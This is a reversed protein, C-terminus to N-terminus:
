VAEIKKFRNKPATCVPCNDPPEDTAVYGCFDCVYYETDRSQKDLQSHLDLNRQQVATSHRFGTELAKAEDKEAETLMANYERIFAPIEEEFATKENEPTTGVGGRIQVLFRQAQMAQSASLARFLLSLQPQGDKKARMAYVKSRESEKTLRAFLMLLEKDLKM